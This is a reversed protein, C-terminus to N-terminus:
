KANTIWINNIKEMKYKKDNILNIFNIFLSKLKILVSQYIFETSLFM